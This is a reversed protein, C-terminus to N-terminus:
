ALICFNAREPQIRNEVWDFVRTIKIGYIEGDELKRYCETIYVDFDDSDFEPFTRDEIPNEKTDLTIVRVKLM